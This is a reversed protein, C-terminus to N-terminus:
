LVEPAPQHHDDERGRHARCTRCDSGSPGPLLGGEPVWDGEAKGEGAGSPRSPGYRFWVDEFAIEGLVPSSLRVPVAAIRVTPETDLLRFIRESSAMASQLLNYKESLDQLPQFFRRTLQLFAALVGVTLTGGLVRAGGYWVLLALAVTSLFEM